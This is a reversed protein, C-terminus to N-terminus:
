ADELTPAALYEADRVHPGWTATRMNKEEVLV